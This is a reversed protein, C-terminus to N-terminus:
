ESSVENPKDDNVPVPGAEDGAPGCALPARQRRAQRTHRFDPWDPEGHHSRTAPGSALFCALCM